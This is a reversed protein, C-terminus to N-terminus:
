PLAYLGALPSYSLSFKAPPSPPALPHNFIFLFYISSLPSTFEASLSVIPPSHVLSELNCNSASAAPAIATTCGPTPLGLSAAAPSGPTILRSSAAAAAGEECSPAVLSAVSGPDAASPFFLARHYHRPRPRLLPRPLAPPFSTVDAGQGESNNNARRLFFFLFCFSSFTSTHPLGLPLSAHATPAPLPAVPSPSNRRALSLLPSNRCCLRPPPPSDPSM